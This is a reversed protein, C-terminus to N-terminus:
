AKPDSQPCMRPYPSSARVSSERLGRLYMWKTDFVRVAM